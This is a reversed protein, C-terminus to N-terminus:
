EATWAGSILAPYKLRMWGSLAGSYSGGFSVWKNASTLNYAASVQSHLAAHDALSQLAPLHSSWPHTHTHFHRYLHAHTLAVGGGGGGREGEGVVVVVVVVWVCV